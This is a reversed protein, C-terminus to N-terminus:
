KFIPHVFFGKQNRCTMFVASNKSNASHWFKFESHLYQQTVLVHMICVKDYQDRRAEIKYAKLASAIWTLIIARNMEKYRLLTNRESIHLL